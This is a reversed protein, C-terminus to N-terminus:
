PIAEVLVRLFTRGTEPTSPPVRFTVREIGDGMDQATVVQLAAEDLATWHELDTSEQLVGRLTRTDILRRYSITDCPQGGLEARGTVLLHDRQGGQTPDMGFYYEVLNPVGDHDFDDLPAVDAPGGIADARDADAIWMEFADDMGDGDRDRDGLLAPSDYECAGIDGRTNVPRAAGLQDVTEAVVGYGTAWVSM